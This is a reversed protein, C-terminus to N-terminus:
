CCLPLCATSVQLHISLQSEPPLSHLRYLESLFAEVLLLWQADSFLQQYPKCTTNARRAPDTHAGHRELLRQETVGSMGCAAGLSPKRMLEHECRDAMHGLKTCLCPLSRSGSPWRAFLKNCSLFTAAPGNHLIPKPMHLPRMYAGLEFWNLSSRSAPVPKDHKM